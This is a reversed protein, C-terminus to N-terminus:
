DIENKPRGQRFFVNELIENKLLFLYVLFKLTGSNSEM